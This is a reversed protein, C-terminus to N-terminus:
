LCTCFPVKCKPCRQANHESHIKQHAWKKLLKDGARNKACTVGDHWPSQCPFCWTFECEPCDVQVGYKAARRDLPQATEMETIRSCRPCTKRRPDANADVLWRDYRDRLGPTFRLVERIEEQFIFKGCAFNPCGIRFVGAELLQTEVYKKTCDECIPLGCCPRKDLKVVELCVYCEEPVRHNDTRRQQIELAEMLLDLAIEAEEFAAREINHLVRAELMQVVEDRELDQLLEELFALHRGRRLRESDALTVGAAEDEGAGLDVDSQRGDSSSMMEWVDPDECRKIDIVDDPEDSTAAAAASTSVLEVVDEDGSEKTVYSEHCL